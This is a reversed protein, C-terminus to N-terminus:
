LTERITLSATGLRLLDLSLDGDSVSALEGLMTLDSFEVADGPVAALRLPPLFNLVVSRAQPAADSWALNDQWPEGDDLFSFFDDSEGGSAVQTVQYFRDAITFYSGADVEMGGVALSISTSRPPAAAAVFAVAREHRAGQAASRDFVKLAISEGQRLRAILARWMRVKEPTNIRIGTLTVEWFGADSYVRQERGTMSRGGSRVFNRLEPDCRRPVLATPWTVAM